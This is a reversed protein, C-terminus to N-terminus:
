RLDDVLQILDTIVRDPRVINGTENERLRLSRADGAFLITQFGQRAAPAIDNRMDNGIFVTREPAVGLDRLRRGALDYLRDCPKAYGEQFSFITLGPDFGLGKLDDGLLWEFILPTYFQANSIIGLHVGSKRCAALLESLHPMPWVPNTILEYELAFQRSTEADELSLIKEWIREIRVEPHDIGASHARAHQAKVASELRERLEEPAIDLDFKRLLRHIATDHDPNQGSQGIDGSSSILLTGYIDCLLAEIPRRLSGSCSLRTSLPAMPLLYDSPDVPQM